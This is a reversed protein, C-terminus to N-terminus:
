AEKAAAVEEDAARVAREVEEIQQRAEAPTLSPYLNARGARLRADDLREIAQLLAARVAAYDYKM